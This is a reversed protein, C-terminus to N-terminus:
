IRNVTHNRMARTEADHINDIAIVLAVLFPADAPDEFIVKFQTSVSIGTSVMAGGAVRKLNAPVISGIVKNGLKIQAGADSYIVGKITLPETVGEVEYDMGFTLLKGVKVHAVEKDNADYIFCSRKLGHIRKNCVKYYVKKNMDMITKKYKKSFTNSAWSGKVIYVQEKKENFVRSAGTISFLKNKVLLEM